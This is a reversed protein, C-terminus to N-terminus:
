CLSIYKFHSAFIVFSCFISNSCFFTQERQEKHFRILDEVGKKKKFKIKFTHAETPFFSFTNM